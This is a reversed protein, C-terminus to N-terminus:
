ENDTQEFKDIEPWIDALLQFTRSTPPHPELLSRSHWSKTTESLQQCVVEEFANLGWLIRNSRDRTHQKIVRRRRENVICSLLTGHNILCTALHLIYHHKPRMYDDGYAIKFLRLHEEITAHLVDPAIYRNKIGTILELCHLVQLVSATEAPCDGRKVVM